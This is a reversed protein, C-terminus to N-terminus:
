NKDTLKKFTRQKSKRPLHNGLKRLWIEHLQLKLTKQRQYIASSGELYIKKTLFRWNPFRLGPIIHSLFNKAMVFSFNGVVDNKNTFYLIDTDGTKLFFTSVETKSWFAAFNFISKWFPLIWTLRSFFSNIYHTYYWYHVIRYETVSSKTLAGLQNLPEITLFSRIGFFPFHIDQTYELAVHRKTHKAM